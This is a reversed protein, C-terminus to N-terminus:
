DAAPRTFGSSLGAEVFLTFLRSRKRQKPAALHQYQPCYRKTNGTTEKGLKRTLVLFHTAITGSAPRRFQASFIM